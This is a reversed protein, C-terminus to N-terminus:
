TKGLIKTKGLAIRARKLCSVVMDPPEDCEELERIIQILADTKTAFCPWGNIDFMEETVIAECREKDEFNAGWIVAWRGSLLLVLYWPGYEGKIQNDFFSKFTSYAEYCKYSPERNRAERLVHRFGNANEADRKFRRIERMSYVYIAKPNGLQYQVSRPIGGEIEDVHGGAFRGDVYLSRGPFNFGAMAWGDDCFPMGCYTQWTDEVSYVYDKTSFGTSFIRLMENVANNIARWHKEIFAEDVKDGANNAKPQMRAEAIRAKDIGIYKWDFDDIKFSFQSGNNMKDNFRPALQNILYRGRIKADDVSVCESYVVIEAEQYCEKPLHGNSTFHQSRIRGKLNGTIGVYIPKEEADLFKYVYHM